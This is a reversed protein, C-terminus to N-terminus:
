RAGAQSRNPELDGETVSLGETFTHHLLTHFLHDAQRLGERQVARLRDYRKAISAFHRQLPMPPIPLPLEALQGMSVRSRTEGHVLGPLLHLTAPMNLLWCLYVGDVKSPNPRAQVCDAKNLAIPVHPPQICARLNPDGLTGILVDGPRCEHKRLRSFHENNIYAEDDNLFTGVGVNQLRIVRVGTPSYHSTKLNSGFPGDSFHSCLERLQVRPWGMENAEPDGFMQRFVAPILTDGLELAYRRLRRLGDAQDLMRALRQQEPIPRLPIEVNLIDADTVAPYAAGACADVLRSVFHRTQTYYFLYKPWLVESKARLVCFGTSGIAGQYADPVFAVANLNPRVTSVLVDSAALVQRARSPADHVLIRQPSIIAKAERDIAAIDIYQISDVGTKRPDRQTAREVAQEIRIENM